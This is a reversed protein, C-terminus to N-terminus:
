GLCAASATGTTDKFIGNYYIRWDFGMCRDSNSAHVYMDNWYYTHWYNEQGPNCEWHHTVLNQGSLTGPNIDYGDRGDCSKSDLETVSVVTRTVIDYHNTPSVCHKYHTVAKFRTYFKTLWVEDYNFDRSTMTEITCTYAVKAVPAEIVRSDATNNGSHPLVLFVIELVTVVFLALSVFIAKRIRELVM